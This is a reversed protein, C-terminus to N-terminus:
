DLILNTRNLDSRQYSWLQPSVYNIDRLLWRCVTQVTFFVHKLFSFFRKLTQLGNRVRSSRKHQDLLSTWFVKRVFDLYRSLCNIGENWWLEQWRKSVTWEITELVNRERNRFRKNMRKQLNGRQTALGKLWFNRCHKNGRKSGNQKVTPCMSRTFSFERYNMASFRWFIIFKNGDQNVAKECMTDQHILFVSVYPCPCCKIVSVKGM